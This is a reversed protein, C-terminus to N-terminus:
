VAYGRMHERVSFSMQGDSVLRERAITLTCMKAKLASFPLTCRSSSRPSGQQLIPRLSDSMVVREAM